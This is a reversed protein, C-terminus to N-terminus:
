RQQACAKDRLSSHETAEVMDGDDHGIEVGRRAEVPIRQTRAHRRGDIQGRMAHRRHEHFQLVALDFQQMRQASGRRNRLEEGVMRGAAHM